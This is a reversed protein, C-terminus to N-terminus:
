PQVQTVFRQAQPTANNDSKETWFVKIAYAGGTNSCAPAGAAGDNPTDDRCVVGSGQPLLAAVQARWDFLDDAALETATCSVVVHLHGYHRERCSNDSPAINAYNAAQTLDNALRNGRMRDAMDTAALVAQSRQSATFSSSLSRTQLAAVGLLGMSLILVSIMAEVLTFGATLRKM